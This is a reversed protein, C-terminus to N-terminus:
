ECCLCFLFFLRICFTCVLTFNCAHDISTLIEAEERNSSVNAFLIDLYGFFEHSAIIRWTSEWFRRARRKPKWLWWCKEWQIKLSTTQGDIGAFSLVTSFIQGWLITSYQGNGALLPGLTCFSVSNEEFLIHVAIRLCYLSSSSFLNFFFFCGWVGCHLVQEFWLWPSKLM